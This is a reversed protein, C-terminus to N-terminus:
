AAAEEITPLSEAKIFDRVTAVCRGCKLKCGLERYLDSVSADPDGCVRRVQRDTLANCICLYM